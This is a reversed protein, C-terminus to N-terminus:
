VSIINIEATGKILVEKHSSTLFEAEGSVIEFKYSGSITIQSNTMVNINVSDNAPVNTSNYKPYQNDLIVCYISRNTAQTNNVKIESDTFGAAHVYETNNSLNFCSEVTGDPDAIIILDTADNFKVNASNKYAM